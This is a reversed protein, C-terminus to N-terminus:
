GDGAHFSRRRVSLYLSPRHDGGSRVGPRAVWAAVVDTLWDHGLCVRSLGMAGGLLATVVLV